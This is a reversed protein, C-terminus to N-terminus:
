VRKIFVTIKEGVLTTEVYYNEGNRAAYYGEAEAVGVTFGSKKLEKVYKEFEGESCEATFSYNYAEKYKEVVDGGFKFKPLVDKFSNHIQTKAQTESATLSGTFGSTNGKVSCASLGAIVIIVASAALIRKLM